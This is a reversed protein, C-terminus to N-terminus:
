AQKCVWQMSPNMTQPGAITCLSTADDLIKSGLNRTTTELFTSSNFVQAVAQVVQAAQVAQVQVAQVQVAQVQLFELPELLRQLRQLNNRCSPPAQLLFHAQAAPDTQLLAPPRLIM